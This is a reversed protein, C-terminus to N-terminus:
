LKNNKLKKTLNIKYNQKTSEKCSRSTLNQNDFDCNNYNNDNFIKMNIHKIMRKIIISKFTINIWKNLYYQIGPKNMMIKKLCNKWYINKIVQIINFVAEFYKKRKTLITIFIKRYLFGKIYKQIKIIQFITKWWIQIHKIKSLFIKEKKQMEEYQQIKKQTLNKSYQYRRIYKANNVANNLNKKEYDCKLKNKQKMKPIPVLEDFFKNKNVKIINKDNQFNTLNKKIYSKKNLITLNNRQYKVSNQLYYEGSKDEYRKTGSMTVYKHEKLFSNYKIQCKKLIDNGSLDNKNNKKINFSKLNATKKPFLTKQNKIKKASNKISTITKFSRIKNREIYLSKDTIQATNM